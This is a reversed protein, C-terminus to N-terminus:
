RAKGKAAKSGSGPRTQKEQPVAIQQRPFNGAQWKDIVKPDAHREEMVIAPKGGAKPGKSQPKKQRPQGKIKPLTSDSASHASGKGLASLEGPGGLGVPVPAQMGSKSQLHSDAADVSFDSVLFDDVDPKSQAAGQEALDITLRLQNGSHIALTQEKTWIVSTVGQINQCHTQLKKVADHSFANRRLDLRKMYPISFIIQLFLNILDDTFGNDSFVLAQVQELVEYQRLLNHVEQVERETMHLGELYLMSVSGAEMQNGVYRILSRTKFQEYEQVQEFLRMNKARLAAVLTNSKSVDALYQDAQSQASHLLELVQAIKEVVLPIPTRSQQAEYLFENIQLRELLSSQNSQILIPRQRGSEDLVDERKIYELQARIQDRDSKLRASEAELGDISAQLQANARVLESLRDSGKKLEARFDSKEDEMSDVRSALYANQTQLSAVQQQVDQAKRECAGQAKQALAISEEMQKNQKKLMNSQAEADRQQQEALQAAEIEMEIKTNLNVVQKEIGLCKKETTQNEAEHKKLDVQNLRLADMLAYVKDAMERFKEASQRNDEQLGENAREASSLAKRLADVQAEQGELRQQQDGANRSFKQREEEEGEMQGKMEVIKTELESAEENLTGISQQFQQAKVEQKQIQQIYDVNKNKVVSLAQELAELDVSTQAEFNAAETRLMENTERVDRVAELLKLVERKAASVEKEAREKVRDFDEEILKLRKIEYELAVSSEQTKRVKDETQELLDLLQKNQDSLVRIHEEKSHSETRQQQLETTIAVIKLKVREYEAQLSAEKQEFEAAIQKAEEKEREGKELANIVQSNQEQLFQIETQRFGDNAAM